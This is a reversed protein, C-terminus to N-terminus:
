HLKLRHQFVLEFIPLLLDKTFSKYLSRPITRVLTAKTGRDASIWGKNRLNTNLLDGRLIEPPRCRTRKLAPEVDHTSNNPRYKRLYPVNIFKKKELWWVSHVPSDFLEGLKQIPRTTFWTPVLFYKLFFHGCSFTLGLFCPGFMGLFNRCLRSLATGLRAEVM